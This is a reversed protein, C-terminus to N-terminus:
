TGMVVHQTQTDRHKPTHGHGDLLHSHLRGLGALLLHSIGCGLRRPELGLVESGGDALGLLGGPGLLDLYLGGGPGGWLGLPGSM